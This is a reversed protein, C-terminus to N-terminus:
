EADAGILTRPEKLPLHGAEQLRFDGVRRFVRYVDECLNSDDFQRDAYKESICADLSPFVETTVDPGGGQADDRERVTVLFARSTDVPGAEECVYFTEREYTTEERDEKALVQKPTGSRAIFLHEAQEVQRNFKSQFSGSAGKSIDLRDAVEEHTYGIERLAITRAQSPNVGANRTLESVRSSVFPRKNRYAYERLNVLEDDFDEVPGDYVETFEDFPRVSLRVEIEGSLECFVYMRIPSGKMRPSINIIARGQEPVDFAHLESDISTRYGKAEAWDAIEIVHQGWETGAFEEFPIFDDGYERILGKDAGLLLKIQPGNGIDALESLHDLTRTVIQDEWTQITETM